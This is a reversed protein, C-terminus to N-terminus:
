RLAQLHTGIRGSVLSASRRKYAHAISIYEAFVTKAESYTIMEGLQHAMKSAHTVGESIM